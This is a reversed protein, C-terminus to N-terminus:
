GRSQHPGSHHGGHLEGDGVLGLLEVGEESVADTPM